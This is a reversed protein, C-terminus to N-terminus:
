PIQFRSTLRCSCDLSRMFYESFMKWTVDWGTIAVVGDVTGSKEVAAVDVGAAEEVDDVVDDDVDDGVVDDGADEVHDVVLVLAGAIGSLGFVLSWLEFTGVTVVCTGLDDDVVRFGDSGSFSFRCLSSFSEFLKTSM